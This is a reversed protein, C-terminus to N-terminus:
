TRTAELRYRCWSTGYDAQLSAAGARGQLTPIIIMHKEAQVLTSGSTAFFTGDASLRAAFMLSKHWALEFRGNTVDLTVDQGPRCSKDHTAALQSSGKYVGDFQSAASAQQTQAMGTNVCVCFLGLVVFTSWPRSMMPRTM